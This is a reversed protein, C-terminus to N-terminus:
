ARGGEFDSAKVNLMSQISVYDSGGIFTNGVKIKKTESRLYM